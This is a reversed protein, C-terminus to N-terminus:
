ILELEVTVRSGKGIGEKKRVSAKVPLIYPGEKTPFVSTKWTSQGLMVQVRVSGWAVRRKRRTRIQQSATKSLTLFHWAAAGDYEWLKGTVKLM